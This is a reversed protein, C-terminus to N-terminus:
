CEEDEEDAEDMCERCTRPYGPGEYDPMYNACCQCRLGELIDEAVEGM